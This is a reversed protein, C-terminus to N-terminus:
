RTKRTTLHAPLSDRRRWRVHLRGLHNRRARRREQLLDLARELRHPQPQRDTGRRQRRRGGPGYGEYRIEEYNESDAGAAKKIAREINDRPMSQARANKVALRLRTSRRIRTSRDEPPPPDGWLSPSHSLLRDHQERNVFPTQRGGMGRLRRDPPTGCIRNACSPLPPRASNMGRRALPSSRNTRDITPLWTAIDDPDCWRAGPLLEPSSDRVARRRVDILQPAHATGLLSWLELPSISFTANAM